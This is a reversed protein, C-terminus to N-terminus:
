KQNDGMRKKLKILLERLWFRHCSRLDWTPCYCILCYIKEPHDDIQRYLEKFQKRSGEQKLVHEKYLKRGLITNEGAIKRLNSPNGLERYRLYEIGNEELLHKMKGPVYYSPYRCSFRVDVVVNIKLDRLNKIFQDPKIGKIYTTRIREAFNNPSKINITRSEM